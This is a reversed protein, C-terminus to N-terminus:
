SKKRTTPAQVPAPPLATLKILVADLILCIIGGALGWCILLNPYWSEGSLLCVLWGCHFGLCFYCDFLKYFFVGVNKNSMLKNRLLGMLGWPGDSEKIFFALGYIALIYILINM